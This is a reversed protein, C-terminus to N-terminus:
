KSSWITTGTGDVVRLTYSNWDVQLKPKGRGTKVKTQWLLTHDKELTLKGYAGLFFRQGGSGNTGSAWMPRKNKDFLVVNGDQQFVFQGNPHTKSNGKELVEEFTLLDSWTGHLKTVTATVVDPSLPDWDRTFKGWTFQAQATGQFACLLLLSLTIKQVNFM